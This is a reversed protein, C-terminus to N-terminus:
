NICDNYELKQRNKAELFTKNRKLDKYFVWLMAGFLCITVAFVTLLATFIVILLELIIEM